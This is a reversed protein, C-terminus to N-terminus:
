KKVREGLSAVMDMGQQVQLCVEQAAQFKERVSKKEDQLVIFIKKKFIFKYNPSQFFSNCSVM